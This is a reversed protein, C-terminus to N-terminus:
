RKKTFHTKVVSVRLCPSFRFVDQRRPNSIEGLGVSLLFLSM